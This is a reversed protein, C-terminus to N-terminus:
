DFGWYGEWWNWEKNSGYSSICQYINEYLHNYGYYYNEGGPDDLAVIGPVGSFWSKVNAVRLATAEIAVEDNDTTYVIVWAHTTNSLNRPDPGVAIYADFGVNELAWELYASSESCDWIGAEYGRPMIFEYKLFYCLESYTGNYTYSANVSYYNQPVYQKSENESRYYSDQLQFMRGQLEDYAFIGGILVLTLIVILAISIWRWM